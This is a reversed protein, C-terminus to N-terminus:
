AGNLRAIWETRERTGGGRLIPVRRTTLREWPLRPFVDSCGDGYTVITPCRLHIIDEELQRYDDRRFTSKADDYNAHTGHYPPDCFVMCDPDDGAADLVDRYGALTHVSGRIYPIHEIISEARMAHQPYRIWSSLQGVYAGSTQVRVITLVDPHIDHERAWARLDAKEGPLLREARRIEESSEDAPTM